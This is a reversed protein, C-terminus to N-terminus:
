DGYSENHESYNKDTYKCKTSCYVSSPYKKMIAEASFYKCDKNACILKAEM